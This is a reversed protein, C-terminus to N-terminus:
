VIDDNIRGTSEELLHGMLKQLVLRLLAASSKPSRSFVSRAEEYDEICNEPLDENPPPAITQDPLIMVEHVWISM